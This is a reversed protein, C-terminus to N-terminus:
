NSAVTIVCHDGGVAVVGHTAPQAIVHISDAPETGLGQDLVRVGSATDIFNVGHALALDLQAQAQAETNQEGWNMTGLCIRSVEIGTDALATYKM